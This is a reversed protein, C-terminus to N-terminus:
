KRSKLPLYKQNEPGTYNATPRIIKGDIRQEIVHAAWGSTRSVVFIPTFMATPVGMMNYSVASFWDLNPFMKKERWMVTELREAINFLKMDNREKSLTRAVEKIVKNRPDGITYVPHGFGIVIEKNQIRRVVDAEADDPRAPEPPRVIMDPTFWRSPQSSFDLRKGDLWVEPTFDSKKVLFLFVYMLARISGAGGIGGLAVSTGPSMSSISSIQEKMFIEPGIPEDHTVSIMAVVERSAGGRSRPGYSSEAGVIECYTDNLPKANRDRLVTNTREFLADAQRQAKAPANIGIIPQIATARWGRSFTACVKYMDTPAYGKCNTVLVRNEGQPTMVVESFDCVADPVIYAQPDSVEYIMQEAVTGVSVLGGTGDPKTLVFTGDSRCEAIPNGINAPDPM